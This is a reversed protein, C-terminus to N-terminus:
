KEKGGTENKRKQPAKKRASKKGTGTESFFITKKEQALIYDGNFSDVSKINEPLLTRFSKMDIVGGIKGFM